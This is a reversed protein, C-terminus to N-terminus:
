STLTSPSVTWSSADSNTGHAANVAGMVPHTPTLDGAWQASTSWRHVALDDHSLRTLTSPRIWSVVVLVVAGGYPAGLRRPLPQM